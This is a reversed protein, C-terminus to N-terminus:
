KAISRQLADKAIENANSSFDRAEEMLKRYQDSRQDFEISVKKRLEENNPDYNDRLARAAQKYQDFAEVQKTLSLEKFNLYQNYDPNVNLNQAERIKDIATRAHTMGDGILDVAKGTLEKVQAADNAVLAKKINERLGLKTDDGETQQYIKKIETLEQNAEQVLKAAEATEDSPGLLGCSTTAGISVLVIAATIFIRHLM